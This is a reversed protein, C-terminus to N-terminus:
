PARILYTGKVFFGDRLRHIGQFAFAEAEALSSGYGAYLVTGPSPTFSVLWDLQLANSSRAAARVYAGTEPDPILIPDNTRSDDRLADQWHAAYQGVVRLFFSRAAQYEVKLRPVMDRAVTSGDTKRWYQQQLYTANVRLRDSPRWDLGAQVFIIWAPAWEYFNEDQIAPLVLLSADFRRFQPTQLNFQLDYNPIRPTGTFPVTDKVGGATHAIKYTSYFASDFGFSELYFAAALTWGRLHWTSTFHLFQDDPVRGSM